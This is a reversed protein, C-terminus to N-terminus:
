PKPAQNPAPAAILEKPIPVNEGSGQELAALRSGQSEQGRRLSELQAHLAKRDRESADLADTAQQLQLRTKRMEDYAAHLAQDTARLEKSIDLFQQRLTALDDRLNANESQAKQAEGNIQHLTIRMREQNAIAEAMQASLSDKNAEDYKKQRDIRVKDYQNIAWIIGATVSGGVTGVLILAGTAQGTLVRWDTMAYGTASVGAGAALPLVCPPIKSLPMPLGITATGDM